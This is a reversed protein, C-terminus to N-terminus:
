ARDKGKRLFIMLVLSASIAAVAMVVVAMAWPWEEPEPEPEQEAEVEFTESHTDSFSRGDFSRVELTYEGADLVGTDVM